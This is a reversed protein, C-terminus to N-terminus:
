TLSLTLLLILALILANSIIHVVKGTVYAWQFAAVLFLVLLLM